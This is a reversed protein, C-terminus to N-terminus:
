GNAAGIEAATVYVLFQSVGFKDYYPIEGDDTLILFNGEGDYQFDYPIMLSGACCRLGSVITEGDRLVTAAMFDDCAKLTISYRIGEITSELSQNPVSALELTSAM